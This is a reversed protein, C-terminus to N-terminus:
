FVPRYVFIGTISTRTSLYDCLNQRYVVKKKVSSAHTFYLKEAGQRSEDVHVFGCHSVDLGEVDTALAVVDGTRALRAYRDLEALPYYYRRRASMEREVRKVKDWDEIGSFKKPNKSLYEMRKVFPEGNIRALDSLLGTDELQRLADTFYYIRDDWRCNVGEYYRVRNLREVFANFLTPDDAPRLAFDKATWALALVNEIFTVCDMQEVNVLTKGPGCGAGGAGYGVGAFRELETQAFHEFGPWPRQTWERLARVVTKDSRGVVFTPHPEVNARRVEYWDDGQRRMAVDTSGAGWAMATAIATLGATKLRRSM